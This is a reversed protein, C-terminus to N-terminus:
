DDRGDFEEDGVIFVRPYYGGFTDRIRERQEPTFRAVDIPVYDAKELHHEVKTKFHEWQRDLYRASFNGVADYTRGHSDIWDYSEDIRARELRVDRQSEIRVATEAEGHRFKGIAPDYGLEHWHRDRDVTTAPVDASPERGAPREDKESADQTQAPDEGGRDSGKLASVQDSPDRVTPTADDSTITSDRDTNTPTATDTPDTSAGTGDASSEASEDPSPRPADRAPDSTPEQASEDAQATATERDDTAM